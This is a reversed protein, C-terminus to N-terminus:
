INDICTAFNQLINKKTLNFFFINDVIRDNQIIIQKLLSKHKTKHIKILKITHYKAVKFFAM